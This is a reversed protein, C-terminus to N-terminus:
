RYYPEYYPWRKTGGFSEILHVLEQYFASCVPIAATGDVNHRTTIPLPPRKKDEEEKGKTDKDKTGVNSSTDKAVQGRFHSPHNAIYFQDDCAAQCDSMRLVPVHRLSNKILSKPVFDASQFENAAAALTDRILDRTEKSVRSEGAKTALPELSSLEKILSNPKSAFGSGPKLSGGTRKVVWETRYVIHSQYHPKGPTCVHKQLHSCSNESTSLAICKPPIRKEKYVRAIFDDYCLDCHMLPPSLHPAGNCTADCPVIDHKDQLKQLLWNFDAETSVSRTEPPKVPEASPYLRLRVAAAAAAVSKSDSAATHQFRCKSGFNCLVGKLFFACPQASKGASM